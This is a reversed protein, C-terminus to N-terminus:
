HLLTRYRSVIPPLRSIPNVPSHLAARSPCGSRTRAISTFHKSLCIPFSEGHFRDRQQLQGEIVGGALRVVFARSPSCNNKGEGAPRQTQSTRAKEVSRDGEAQTAGKNQSLHFYSYSGHM